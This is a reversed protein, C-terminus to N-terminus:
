YSPTSAIRYYSFFGYKIREILRIRNPTGYDDEIGESCFFCHKRSAGVVGINGFIYKFGIDRKFNQVGLWYPGKHWYEGNNLSDIAESFTSSDENADEQAKKAMAAFCKVAYEYINSNKGAVFKSTTKAQALEQVTLKGEFGDRMIFQTDGNQDEEFQVVNDLGFVQISAKIIAISVCNGTGGQKFAEILERTTM